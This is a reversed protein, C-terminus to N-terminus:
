ERFYWFQCGSKQASSVFRQESDSGGLGADEQM